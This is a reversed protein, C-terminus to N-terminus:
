PTHSKSGLFLARASFGELTNLLKDEILQKREEPAAHVLRSQLQIDNALIRATQIGPELQLRIELALKELQTPIEFEALHKLRASTFFNAQFLISMVTVLVMFTGFAIFMRKTQSLQQWFGTM